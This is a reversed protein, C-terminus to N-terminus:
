VCSYIRKFEAAGYSIAEAIELWKKMTYSRKRIKKIKIQSDIQEEATNTLTSYLSKAEHYNIAKDNTKLEKLTNRAKAYSVQYAAFQETPAWAANGENDYAVYTPHPDDLKLGVLLMGEKKQFLVTYLCGDVCVHNYETKHIFPAQKSIYIHGEIGSVLAKNVRKLVYAQLNGKVSLEMSETIEELANLYLSGEIRLSFGDQISKVSDAYIDNVVTAQFRKDLTKLGRMLLTDGVEPRFDGTLEEVGDLSLDGSVKPSFGDPLTKVKNAYFSGKVHPNFGEPLETAENLFLPGNIPEQGLVQEQSLKHLQAFEKLQDSINM